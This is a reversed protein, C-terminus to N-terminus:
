IRADANVLAGLTETIRQSDELFNAASRCACACARRVVGNPDTFRSSLVADARLSNLVHAAIFQEAEPQRGLDLLEDSLVTRRPNNGDIEGVLHLVSEDINVAIAQRMVGRKVEPHAFKHSM